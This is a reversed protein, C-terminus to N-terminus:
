RACSCWGQWGTREPVRSPFNCLWDFSVSSSVQSSGMRCSGWSTFSAAAASSNGSGWLVAGVTLPLTAEPSNSSQGTRAPAGRHGLRPEGGAGARFLCLSTGRDRSGRTGLECGGRGSHELSRGAAAHSVIQLPNLPLCSEHPPTHLLFSELPDSLFFPALPARWSHSQPVFTGSCRM